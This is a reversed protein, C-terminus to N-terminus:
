FDSLFQLESIKQDVENFGNFENAEGACKKRSKDIEKKREVDARSKM